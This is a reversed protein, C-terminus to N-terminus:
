GAQHVGAAVPGRRLVRSVEFMGSRCRWCGGAITSGCRGSASGEAAALKGITLGAM